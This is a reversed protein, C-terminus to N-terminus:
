QVKTAVWASLLNSCVNEAIKNGHSAHRCDSMFDPALIYYYQLITSM